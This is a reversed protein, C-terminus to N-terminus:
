FNGESKKGQPLTLNVHKLTSFGRLEGDRESHLLIVKDKTLLDSQFKERDCNAYYNKYLRFMKAREPLKVDNLSVVKAKLRGVKM